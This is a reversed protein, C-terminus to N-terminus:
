QRLNTLHYALTSLVTEPIYAEAAQRVLAAEEGQHLEVEVAQLAEVLVQHFEVGSDPLRVTQLHHLHM